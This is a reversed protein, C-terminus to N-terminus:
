AKVICAHTSDNKKGREKSKQKIQKQKAWDATWRKSHPTRKLKLHNKECKNSCYFFITGDKKVFMKGTGRSLTIGCFSCLPM